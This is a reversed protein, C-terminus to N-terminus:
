IVRSINYIAKNKIRIIQRDCYNYDMALQLITMDRLYYGMIIDKEKPPLENIANSLKEEYPRVMDSTKILKEEIREIMLCANEVSSNPLSSFAPIENLRGLQSHISLARYDISKILRILKKTEKLNRLLLETDKYTM